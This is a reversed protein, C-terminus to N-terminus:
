TSALHTVVRNDDQWIDIKASDTIAPDIFTHNLTGNGRICSVIDVRTGNGSIPENQPRWSSRLAVLPSSCSITVSFSISGNNPTSSINTVRVNSNTTPPAVPNTPPPVIPVSGTTATTEIVPESEPETENEDEGQSNEDSSNEKLSEDEESTTNKKFEKLNLSGTKYMDSLIMESNEVQVDESDTDFDDIEVLANQQDDGGGCSALFFAIFIYQTKLLKNM